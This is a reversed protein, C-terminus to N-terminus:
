TSTPTSNVKVDEGLAPGTLLASKGPEEGRPPPLLPRIGLLPPPPSLSHETVHSGGESRPSHSLSCRVSSMASEPTRSVILSRFRPVNSSTGQTLSYLTGSLSKFRRDSGYLSLISSFFRSRALVSVRGKGTLVHISTSATPVLKNQFPLSSTHTMWADRVFSIIIPVM